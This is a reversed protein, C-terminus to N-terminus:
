EKDKQSDVGAETDPLTDQTNEHNEEEENDNGDCNSDDTSLAQTLQNLFLQQVDAISENRAQSEAETESIIGQQVLKDQLGNISDILEFLDSLHIKTNNADIQKEITDYVMNLLIMMIPPVYIFESPDSKLSDYPDKSLLSIVLKQMEILENKKKKLLQRKENLKMLGSLCNKVDIETEALYNESKHIEEIQRANKKELTLADTITQISYSLIESIAESSM